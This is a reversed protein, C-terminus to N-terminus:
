ADVLVFQVEEDIPLAARWDLSTTTYTIRLLSYGATASTLNQGAATVDGLGTHQWALDVIATVPYRTSARGEVFEVTEIETRTTEGLTAIVTASHGTHALVVARAAALYARVKGRYVDDTDAVYEIRDASTSVSGEDNALTV